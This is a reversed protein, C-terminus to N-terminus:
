RVVPQRFGFVLYAFSAVPQGNRMAPQFSWMKGADVAAQDFAPSSQVVKVPGVAGTEDVAVELVVIGDGMGRPPYAPPVMQVPKPVAPSTAPPRAPAPAVVLLEPPRLFGAVMVRTDVPKAKAEETEEGAGKEEAPTFTWAQLASGLSDVFPSKESLTEVRAVSGDAAIALEFVAQSWGVSEVPVMPVAGSSLRAPTFQAASALLLVTLALTPV